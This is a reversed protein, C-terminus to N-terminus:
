QNVREPTPAADRARRGNSGAPAAYSHPRGSGYGYGFGTEGRVQNLVTGILRADVQDLLEKCRALERKTSHRASAVLIVGDVQGAMVVGDSVPLLPAGDLIVFDAVHALANLLDTTRQGALMESPNPPQAGASLVALGPVKAIYQIAAAAQAEGLLVSTFGVDNSLGFFSHLRPRRLDASAVVVRKGARALAVGLNAVTTTKGEGPKGSTVLITKLSRDLSAFAVSTRLTRYAEAESSEPESLSIVMPTDPDRWTAVAPVLGLTPMHGGLARELDGKDKVSDDLYERLFALGVGLVLGAFGGLATDQIPKPRIPSGPKKAPSVLQAGGSRLQSDVSLQDVQQKVLSEQQILANKENPDKTSAIQNEIDTLQRSLLKSAQALDDVAQTRRYDIYANSYANALEAARAANGDQVKVFILDTKGDQDPHVKPVDRGLRQKVLAQIPAAKLVGIETQVVRDRDSVVVGNQGSFLNESPRSELLLTAKGQYVPKQVLSLALAAALAAVVAGAVTLRRRRLMAVYGRLPVERPAEVPPAAVEM